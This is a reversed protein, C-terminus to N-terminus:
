EAESRLERVQPILIITVAGVAGPERASQTLQSSSPAPLAACTLTFILLDPSVYTAQLTGPPM